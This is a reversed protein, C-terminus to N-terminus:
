GKKKSLKDVVSVGRMWDRFPAAPSGGVKGGPAIDRMVGSQAAIQVGDGVILHGALGAQGGLMVFDGLTTSGSIGVQSVVVCNRGLRVNHGIQVLNDIKTGAGIVTDPGTGRDIASNAGIEVDDEIVVRGLQPVKLHGDPGLAFGFGDQGIRVGTHIIAGSGVLCCALTALPGILCDDGIVVGRGIVTNAGIVCRDGIEVEAGIVAGPGIQCDGGIHASSAVSASDAQGPVSRDAPYFARAIRAYGHYPEDCVLLAMGDPAKAVMAPRVVCAGARSSSFAEAYRRNDLFSVSTQDASGLPAVDSFQTSPDGAAALEAGSVEALQALSFPGSVKFFRKDTM